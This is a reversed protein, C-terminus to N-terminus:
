GAESRRPHELGRLRRQWAMLRSALRARLGGPPAVWARHRRAWQAARRGTQLVLARGVPRTCERFLRGEVQLLETRLRAIEMELRAQEQQKRELIAQNVAYLGADRLLTLLDHHTSFYQDLRRVLREAFPHGRRAVIALRSEVLAPSLERPWWASFPSGQRCAQVWGQAAPCASIRGLGLAIVLNDGTEDLAAALRAALRDPDHEPPMMVVISERGSTGLADRISRWPDETFPTECELRPDGLGVLAQRIAGAEAPGGGEGIVAVVRAVQRSALAAVSATGQAEGCALDVVGVPSPVFELILRLLYVDLPELRDPSEPGNLRDLFREVPSFVADITTPQLAAPVLTQSM